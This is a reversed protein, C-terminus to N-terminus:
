RTLGAVLSAVARDFSADVDDPLGFGGAAQLTVFGHVLARVARVADIEAGPELGLSRLADAITEVTVASAAALEQADPGHAWDGGQVAAYRGPRSVGYRRAARALAVVDPGAARLVADFEEVCVLAVDRRLGPLGAVHKYLSPVAVGARAAVAGLTMGDWGDEDLTALAIEVVRTRSLGARPM